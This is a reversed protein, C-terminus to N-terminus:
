NVREILRRNVGISLTNLSDMGFSNITYKKM